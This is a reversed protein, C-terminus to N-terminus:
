GGPQGGIIPLIAATIDSPCHASALLVHPPAIEEPQAPRPMPAQAGSQQMTATSERMPQTRDTRAVQQQIKRQLVAVLGVRERYTAM